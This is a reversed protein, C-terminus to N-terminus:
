CSRVELTYHNDCFPDVSAVAWASGNITLKDGIQPPERDNWANAGTKAILVGRKYIKSQAADESFPDLKEAPFVCAAYTGRVVAGGPRKGDVAVLHDFFFEFASDFTQM